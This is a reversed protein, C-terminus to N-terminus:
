CWILCKNGTSCSVENHQDAGNGLLSDELPEFRAASVGRVAQQDIRRRAATPLFRAYKSLTSLDDKHPDQISERNEKKGEMREVYEALRATLV